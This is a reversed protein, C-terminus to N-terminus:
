GQKHLLHDIAGGVIAFGSVVLGFLKLVGELDSDPKFCAMGAVGLFGLAAILVGRAGAGTNLPTASAGRPMGSTFSIQSNNNRKVQNSNVGVERISQITNIANIM